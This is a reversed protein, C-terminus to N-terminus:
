VPFQYHKMRIEWIWWIFKSAFLSMKPYYRQYYQFRFLRFPLFCPTLCSIWCLLYKITTFVSLITYSYPSIACLSVYLFCLKYCYQWIQLFHIPWSIQECFQTSISQGSSCLWLYGHSSDCLFSYEGLSWNLM